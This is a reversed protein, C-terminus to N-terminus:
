SRFLGMIASNQRLAKRRLKYDPLVREVERWFKASHNLQRTHCLEHVAVYVSLAVPLLAVRFSYSINGKSNCSGWRSHASSVKVSNYSFGYQEALAATLASMYGLTTKKLLRVLAAETKERPLYITEGSIRTRGEALLYEKGFLTIRGGLEFSPLNKRESVRRALWLRHKNVFADIKEEPVGHPARVVPEGDQLTLVLSKRKSRVIRYEM